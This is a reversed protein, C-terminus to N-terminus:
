QNALKNIGTLYRDECKKDYAAKAKDYGRSLSLSYLLEPFQSCKEPIKKSYTHAFQYCYADM